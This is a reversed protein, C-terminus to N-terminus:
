PTKDTYIRELVEMQKESLSGRESFQDDLSQIFDSEWKSLGVGDELVTKLYHAAKVAEDPKM